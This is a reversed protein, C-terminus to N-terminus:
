CRCVGLPFPCILDMMTLLSLCGSSISMDLGDYDAVVYVFSIFMDLGDYDAVVYM